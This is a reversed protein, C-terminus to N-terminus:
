NQTNAIQKVAGKPIEARCFGSQRIPLMDAQRATGCVRSLGTQIGQGRLTQCGRLAKARNQKRTKGLKDGRLIKYVEERAYLVYANPTNSM